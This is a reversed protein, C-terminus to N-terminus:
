WEKKSLWLDDFHRLFTDIYIYYEERLIGNMIDTLIYKVSFLLILLGLCPSEEGAKKVTEV